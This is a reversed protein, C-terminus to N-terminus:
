ISPHRYLQPSGSPPDAPCVAISSFLKPFNRILEFAANSGFCTGPLSIRERKSTKRRPRFFQSFRYVQENRPGNKLIRGLVSFVFACGITVFVIRFVLEATTRKKSEVNNPDDFRGAAMDGSSHRSDCFIWSKGLVICNSLTRKSSSDITRYSYTKSMVRCGTVLLRVFANPMTM